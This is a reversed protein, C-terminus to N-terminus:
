TLTCGVETPQERGQKELLLNEKGRGRRGKRERESEREKEREGKEGKEGKEEKKRKRSVPDSCLGPQGPIRYVLSTRSNGSM